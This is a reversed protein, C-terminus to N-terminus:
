GGGGGGGWIHNIEVAFLQDFVNKVFDCFSYERISNVNDFSTTHFYILQFDPIKTATISFCSNVM